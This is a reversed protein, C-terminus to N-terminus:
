SSSDLLSAANGIEDSKECQEEAIRVNRQSTHLLVELESLFVDDHQEAAREIARIVITHLVAGESRLLTELEKTQDGDLRNLASFLTNKRDETLLISSRILGNLITRYTHKPM